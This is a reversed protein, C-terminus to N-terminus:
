IRNLQHTGELVTLPPNTLLRRPLIGSAREQLGRESCPRLAPLSCPRPVPELGTGAQQDGCSAPRRWPPPGMKVLIWVSASCLPFLRVEKLIKPIHPTNVAPGSPLRGEGRSRTSCTGELEDSHRQPPPPSSGSVWRPRATLM